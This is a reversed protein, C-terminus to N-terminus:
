RMVREGFQGIQHSGSLGSVMLMSDTRAKKASLAGSMETISDLMLEAVTVSLRPLRLTTLRRPDRSMSSAIPSRHHQDHRPVERM